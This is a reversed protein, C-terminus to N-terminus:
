IDATVLRAAVPDELLEFIRNAVTVAADPRRIADIEAALRDRAGASGLLETVDRTIASADRASLAAGRGVLVQLNGDEQGPLPRVLVMPLRAALAESSTLGGPKTVLVDSAHMYDDVNDVFGLVRLPYGATEAAALVRRRLGDNRGVIVAAALPRRVQGLARIMTELPGIGVGGAMVLVMARDRPLGLAGRLAERPMRPESFRRDVPIGSALIRAPDIGRAVLTRVLDDSAVAYANVNPHLWYPHVVFDTVIGVVPLARAYQAKYESMVGCPFAHTCVVLDPRWQQVLARLNKAAFRSVLRRVRPIETAREGRRYVYRYVQPVTKVMGIYGDAVVKAFISAAYAYSDVTRTELAPDRATLARV